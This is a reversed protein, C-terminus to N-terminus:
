ERKEEANHRLLPWHAILQQKGHLSLRIPRQRTTIRLAATLFGVCGSVTQGIRAAMQVGYTLIFRLADAVKHM